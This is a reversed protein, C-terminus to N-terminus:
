PAPQNALLQLDKATQNKNPTFFLQEIKAIWKELQDLPKIQLDKHFKTLIEHPKFLPNSSSM